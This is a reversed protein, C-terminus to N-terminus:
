SVMKISLSPRSTQISDCWITSLTTRRIEIVIELRTFIFTNSLSITKRASTPRERCLSKSGEDIWFPALIFRLLQFHCLFIQYFVNLENTVYWPITSLYNNLWLRGSYRCSQDYDYIFQEIFSIDFYYPMIIIHM